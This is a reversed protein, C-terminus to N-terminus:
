FFYVISVVESKRSMEEYFEHKIHWQVVGDFTLKFFNINSVLVRSVLTSFNRRILLDDDPSPLLSTALQHLDVRPLLPTTESLHSFDIRSAVAYSHFYHISGSKTTDSRMYRQKVTKDINDGCLRYMTHCHRPKNAASTQQIATLNCCEPVHLGVSARFQKLDLATSDSESMDSEREDSSESVSYEEESTLPSIALFSSDSDSNYSEDSSSSNQDDECPICYRLGTNDSQM